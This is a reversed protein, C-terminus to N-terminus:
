GGSTKSLFRPLSVPCRWREQAIHRVQCWDAMGGGRRGVMIGEGGRRGM